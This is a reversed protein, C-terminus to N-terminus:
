MDMRFTTRPQGERAVQGMKYMQSQYKRIEKAVTGDFVKQNDDLYDLFPNLTMDEFDQKVVKKVTEVTKHPFAINLGFPQKPIFKNEEM